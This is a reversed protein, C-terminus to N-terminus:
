SCRTSDANEKWTTAALAARRRAQMSSQAIGDGAKPAPRELTHRRALCGWQQVFREILFQTDSSSPQPPSSVINNMDHRWFVEGSFDAFHSICRLV